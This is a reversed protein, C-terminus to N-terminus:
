LKVGTQVPEVEWLDLQFYSVEEQIRIKFSLSLNNISSKPKQFVFAVFSTQKDHSPERLVDSCYLCSDFSETPSLTFDTDTLNLRGNGGSPKVTLITVKCSGGGGNCAM